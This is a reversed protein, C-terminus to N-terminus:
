NLMEEYPASGEPMSQSRTLMATPRRESDGRSKEWEEYSKYRKVLEDFMIAKRDESFLDGAQEMMRATYGEFGMEDCLTILKANM